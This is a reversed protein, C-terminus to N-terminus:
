KENDTIGVDVTFQQTIMESPINIKMLINEYLSQKPAQM